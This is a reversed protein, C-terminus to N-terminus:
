GVQHRDLNILSVLIQSNYRFPQVCRVKACLRMFGLIPNLNKARIAHYQVGDRLSQDEARRWELSVTATSDSPVTTETKVLRSKTSQSLTGFPKPITLAVARLGKGRAEIFKPLTLTCIAIIGLSIGAYAWFAQWAASYTFDADEEGIRVTYIIIFVLCASNFVQGDALAPTNQTQRSQRPDVVVAVSSTSTAIYANLKFRM